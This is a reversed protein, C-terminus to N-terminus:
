LLIASNNTWVQDTLEVQGLRGRLWAEWAAGRHLSGRNDICVVAYGQSALLHSRHNSLPDFVDRQNSLTDFVARHNTLIYRLERLGKFSNTVLQLEPGGYM